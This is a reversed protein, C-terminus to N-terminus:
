SRTLLVQLLAQQKRKKRLRMVKAAVCKPCFFMVKEIREREYQEELVKPALSVLDSPEPSKGICYTRIAPLVVL